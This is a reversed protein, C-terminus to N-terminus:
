RLIGGEASYDETGADSNLLGIQNEIDHPSIMGGRMKIIADQLVTAPQGADDIHGGTATKKWYAEAELFKNSSLLSLLRRDPVVIESVVTRGSIGTGNCKQCGNGRLRVDSDHMDVVHKLRYLLQEDVQDTERRGIIPISCERCLVPLLRQYLIGAIFNPMTLIEWPLGIERLRVFAWLASYAHLTAFVKRGALVMDRTVMASESDRIEGVMVVDPDQRLTGRLFTTFVSGTTSDQLISRNRAVPIQCAGPITYEVPDEVTIIKIEKGRREFIRGIVSQLTTSKGSGTPGCVLVMGNSGSSLMDLLQLKYSSYGLSQLKPIETEMWLLRIVIHFNGSPYIPSSSFRLQMQKGSSSTWEIAGDAVESEKWVVEKSGADALVSYLVQGVARATDSTINAYFTRLGNVRFLIDASAGRTEIHVDSAKASEAANIIKGILREIDTADSATDIASSRVSQYALRVIDKSARVVTAHYGAKVVRGRVDYLVPKAAAEQTALIAVTNNAIAILAFDERRELPLELAGKAGSILVGKPLDELREIVNQDNSRRQEEVETVTAAQQVAPNLRLARPFLLSM